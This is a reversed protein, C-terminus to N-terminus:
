QEQNQSRTIYRFRKKHQAIHSHLKGMMLRPTSCISSSSYWSSKFSIPFDSLWFIEVDFKLINRKGILM